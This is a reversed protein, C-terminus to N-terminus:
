SPRKSLPSKDFGTGASKGGTFKPTADAKLSSKKPEIGVNDTITGDTAKEGTYKGPEGGTGSGFKVPKGGYDKRAPVSSHPSKTGEAGLPSNKGTGVLKATGRQGTDAVKSLFATEEDVKSANKAVKARPAKELKDAKKKEQMFASVEKVLDDDAPFENGVGADAGMDAALDAHNPEQLEEGMLADFEARLEALQQELDEVREETSEDSELDDDAQMMDDGDADDSAEGDNEEDAAVEETDDEIEATFDEETDGGVVDAESLEDAIEEDDEEDVINEYIARAKEVIIQHLLEAAQEQNEALLLDLVKELNQQKSM